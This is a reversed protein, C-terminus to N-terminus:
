DETWDQEDHISSIENHQNLLMTKTWMEVRIIRLYIVGASWGGYMVRLLTQRRAYIIYVVPHLGVMKLSVGLLLEEPTSNDISGTSLM